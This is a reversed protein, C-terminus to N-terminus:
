KAVTDLILTLVLLAIWSALNLAFVYPGQSFQQRFLMLASTVPLALWVYFLGNIGIVQQASPNGQLAFQMGITLFGAPFIWAVLLGLYVLVKGLVSTGQSSNAVVRANPYLRLLVEEEADSTPLPHWLSTGGFRAKCYACIRANIPISTMCSPCNAM